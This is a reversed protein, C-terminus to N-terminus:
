LGDKDLNDSNQLLWKDDKGVMKLEHQDDSNASLSIKFNPSVNYKENHGLIGESKHQGHGKNEDEIGFFPDDRGVPYIKWIGDFGKYNTCGPLIVVKRLCSHEQGIDTMSAAESVKYETITPDKCPLKIAEKSLDFM